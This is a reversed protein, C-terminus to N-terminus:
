RKAGFVTVAYYTATPPDFHLGIGIDRVNPLLMNANHGPSDRWGEFFGRALTEGNYEVAGSRMAINEAFARHVYGLAGARDWPERGDATHSFKGTKAMYAAFEQASQMLKADIAVRPLKKSARYANIM